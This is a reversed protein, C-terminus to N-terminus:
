RYDDEDMTVVRTQEAADAENVVGPDIRTLPDDTRQQLETHQEAADAEPTEEDLTVTSETTDAEFTEPENPDVTM